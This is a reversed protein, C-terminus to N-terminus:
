FTSTVVGNELVKTEVTKNSSINKVRIVEGKSGNELAEGSMSASIGDQTAVIKVKDGRKVALPLAILGPNLVQNARLRRKAGMGTVQSPQHYFGRPTKNIDIEQRKIDANTIVEGRDIIRTTVLVPLWLQVETSVQIRWGPQDPCTITLRQRGSNATGGSVIPTNSCHATSNGLPISNHTIRWGRWGERQATPQMLTELHQQIQQELQQNANAMAINPLMLILMFLCLSTFRGCPSISSGGTKGRPDSHPFSRTMQAGTMKMFDLLILRILTFLARPM